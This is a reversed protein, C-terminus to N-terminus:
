LLHFVSNKPQAFLKLIFSQISNYNGLRFVAAVHAPKRTRSAIENNGPILSKKNGVKPIYLLGTNLGWVVLDDTQGASQIAPKIINNPRQANLLQSKILIM